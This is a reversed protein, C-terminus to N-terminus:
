QTKILKFLRFQEDIIKPETLELEFAKIKRENIYAIDKDPLLTFYYLPIENGCRKLIPFISYNLDFVITQKKPFFLKDARDSIIVANDEILIEVKKAQAYYTETIKKQDLLGDGPTYFVMQWSFAFLCILILGILGYRLIKPWLQNQIWYLLYAIFPIILINLPVWYRMYSSGITNNKLVLKDIFLWNGYYFVLWSGILIGAWFFARQKKIQQNQRQGRLWVILGLVFISVFPWLIKIFYNWLTYKLIQFHFGFPIFIFKLWSVLTSNGAVKFETPLRDIINGATNM